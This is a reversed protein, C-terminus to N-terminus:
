HLEWRKAKNELSEAAMFTHAIGTPCATVALVRITGDDAKEEQVAPEEEEKAAEEPFKETEKRTM